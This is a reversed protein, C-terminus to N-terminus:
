VWQPRVQCTATGGGQPLTDGGWHRQWFSVCVVGAQRCSRRTDSEGSRRARRSAFTAWLSAGRARGSALHPRPQPGM